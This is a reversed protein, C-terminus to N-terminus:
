ETLRTKLAGSVFMGRFLISHRFLKFIQCALYKTAQRDNFKGFPINAAFASPFHQAIAAYRFDDGTVTEFSPGLAASAQVSFLRGNLYIQIPRFYTRRTRM